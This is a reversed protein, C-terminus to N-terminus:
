SELTLVIELLTALDLKSTPKPGLNLTLWTVHYAMIDFKIVRSSSVRSVAVLQELEM